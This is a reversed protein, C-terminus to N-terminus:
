GLSPEEQKPLWTEIFVVMDPRDYEHAWNAPTGGYREDRAGRDAGFCLLLDALERKGMGAALHLATGGVYNDPWFDPLKIRALSPENQLMREVEQLDNWCASLFRALHEAREISGAVEVVKPSPTAGYASLREYAARRGALLALDIPTRDLRDCADLPAGSEVLLDIMELLNDRAALHLPTFEIYQRAVVAKSDHALMERVRDVFGLAVATFITVQTGHEVLYEGIRRDNLLDLATGPSGAGESSDEDPNVDAGREVLLKVMEFQRYHAAWHLVTGGRPKDTGSARAELDAGADILVEAIRM